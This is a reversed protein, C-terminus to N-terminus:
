EEGVTALWEYSAPTLQNAPLLLRNISAFAERSARCSDIFRAMQHDTRHQINHLRILDRWILRLGLEPHNDDIRCSIYATIEGSKGGPTRHDEQIMLAAGLDIGGSWVLMSINCRAIIGEIGADM